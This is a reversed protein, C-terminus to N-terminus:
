SAGRESYDKMRGVIQKLGQELPDEYARSIRISDPYVVIVERKTLYTPVIIRWDEHANILWRQLVKLFGATLISPNNIEVVQTRDGTFDGRIYFDAMYRAFGGMSCRCYHDFQCFVREYEDADVNSEKPNSKWLGDWDCFRPRRSRSKM